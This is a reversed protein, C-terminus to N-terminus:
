CWAWGRTPRLGKTSSSRSCGCTVDGALLGPIGPYEWSVRPCCGVLSPNPSTHTLCPTGPAVCCWASSLVGLLSCM